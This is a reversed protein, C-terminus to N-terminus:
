NRQCDGSEREKAADAEAILFRLPWVQMAFALFFGSSDLYPFATKHFVSHTKCRPCKIELCSTRGLATIYELAPKPM